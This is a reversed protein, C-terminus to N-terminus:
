LNMSTAAGRSPPPNPISFFVPPVLVFDQDRRLKKNHSILSFDRHNRVGRISPSISISPLDPALLQQQDFLEGSKRRKKFTNGRQTNYLSSITRKKSSGAPL